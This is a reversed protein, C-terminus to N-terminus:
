QGQRCALRRVVVHISQQELSAAKPNHEDTEFEQWFIFIFIGFRVGCKQFLYNAVKFIWIKKM